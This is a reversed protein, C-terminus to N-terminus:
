NFNTEKMLCTLIVLFVVHGVTAGCSPSVSVVALFCQFM